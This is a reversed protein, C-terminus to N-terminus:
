FNKEITLYWESPHGPQKEAHPQGFSTLPFSNLFYEEDTANTVGVTARWGSEASTWMLSVNLLEYGDDCLQDKTALSAVVPGFCIESQGYLDARPTM